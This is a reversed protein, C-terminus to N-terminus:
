GAVRGAVCHQAGLPLWGLAREVPALRDGGFPLFLIDRSRVDRLGAGRALRAVRRRSLLVADEDFECNAVVRRTVPNLPNHEFVCVLGGPRVVRVMDAMFREWKTPDVHHMVCIAFAADHTADNYPLRENSIHRYTVSPNERRARHLSRESVDAGHLEGVRGALLRDTEGVGCGVDLVRLQDPRGIRQLERLLERVKARTFYAHDQGSFAIADDVADRYTGEYADFLQDSGTM